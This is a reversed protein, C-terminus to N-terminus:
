LISKRRYIYFALGSGKDGSVYALFNRYTHEFKALEEYENDLLFKEFQNNDQHQLTIVHSPMPIDRGYVKGHSIDDLQSMVESENETFDYSDFLWEDPLSGRNDNFEETPFVTLWYRSGITPGFAWWYDTREIKTNNLPYRFHKYLYLQPWRHLLGSDNNLWYETRRRKELSKWNPRDILPCDALMMPVTTHVHSYFSTVHCFTMFLVSLNAGTSMQPYKQLEKALYSTTNETGVQLVFQWM